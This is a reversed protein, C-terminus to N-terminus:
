SRDVDNRRPQDATGHAPRPAVGCGTEMAIMANMQNFPNLLGSTEVLRPWHTVIAQRVEAVVDEVHVRTLGVEDAVKHWFRLGEPDDLNLVARPHGFLGCGHAARASEPMLDYAPALRWTGTEADLLMEHNRLHDDLVNMGVAFAMRRLLETAQAAWEGEPVLKHLARFMLAYDGDHIDRVENSHLLSYMSVRHTRASAQRDYRRSLFIQGGGDTADVIKTAPVDVGAIAAMQSSLYEIATYQKGEGLRNFKALWHDGNEDVYAAKPMVGGHSAVAPNRMGHLRMAIMTRQFEESRRRVETLAEIGAVPREDEPRSVFFSLAGVTRSGFWHLLECDLMGRLQPYEARLVTMGWNGPLSDQFVAHLLGPSLNPNVGFTRPGLRISSGSDTARYDLNIPDLPPGDYTSLYSFVGAKRQVDFRIVGVPRMVGVIQMGVYVEKV